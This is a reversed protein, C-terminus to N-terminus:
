AELGDRLTSAPDHFLWPMWRRVRSIDPLVATVTRSQCCAEWPSEQRSSSTTVRWGQAPMALATATQMKRGRIPHSQAIISMPACAMETQMTPPMWRASMRTLVNGMATKTTARIMRVFIAFTASVTQILMSSTRIRRVLVTTAFTSLGTAM